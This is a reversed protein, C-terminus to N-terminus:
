PIVISYMGSGSLGRLLWVTLTPASTKNNNKFYAQMFGIHLNILQKWIHDCFLPLLVFPKWIKNCCHHNNNHPTLNYIQPIPGNVPVNM